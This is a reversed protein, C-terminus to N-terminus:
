TKACLCSDPPGGVGSMLRLPFALMWINLQSPRWTPFWKQRFFSFGESAADEQQKCRGPPLKIKALNPGAAAEAGFPRAWPPSLPSWCAAAGPGRETLGERWLARSGAGATSPGWGCASGVEIRSTASQIPTVEKKGRRAGREGSQGYSPILTSLQFQTPLSPTQGCSTHSQLHCSLRVQWFNQYAVILCLGSTRSKHEASRLYQNLSCHSFKWLESKTFHSKNLIMIIVTTCLWWCTSQNIYDKGAQLPQNLEEM